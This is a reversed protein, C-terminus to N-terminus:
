TRKVVTIAVAWSGGPSAGPGTAPWPRPGPLPPRPGPPPRPRPPGRLMFRRRVRQRHNLSEAVFGPSVKRVDAGVGVDNGISRLHRGPIRGAAARTKRHGVTNEEHAM